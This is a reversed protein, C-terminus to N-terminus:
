VVLRRVCVVLCALLVFARFSAMTYDYRFKVRRFSKLWGNSREVVYRQKGLEKDYHPPRGKKRRKKFQREPINAKIGRSRLKRRLVVGDFGKDALLVEPKSRQGVRLRKIVKDAFPYDHRNGSSFVLTLPVGEKDTISVVKTGTQHHKGSYGTQYRFAFSPILTGDIATLSLDIKREQYLRALTKHWLQWLWSKREWLRFRRWHTVGSPIGPADLDRWRCGSRLVKLIGPLLVLNSYAPRGM